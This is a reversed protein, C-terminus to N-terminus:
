QKQHKKWTSEKLSVTRNVVILNSTTDPDVCYYGIREFQIRDFPKLDKISPDVYACAVSLSNPNLDKLWDDEYKKVPDESLFLRSYDRVQVKVAEQIPVWHIAHKSTGKPIQELVIETIEGNSDKKIDVAKIDVNVYRLKVFKPQASNLALGFYEAEDNERFDSKEIYFTGDFPVEHEGKEPMEPINPCQIKVKGGTWNRITAKVPDSVAFVRRSTKNLDQRVYEELNEIPLVSNNRTVGIAECFNNIGEASYGRRRFGNLTSLRPDDWGKVYKGSVLKILKRKSLVTYTLALRAYEWVVSRYLELSDVLWNYSDRRPV